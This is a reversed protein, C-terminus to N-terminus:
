AGGRSEGQSADSTPLASPDKLLGFATLSRRAIAQASTSGGASAGNPERLAPRDTM